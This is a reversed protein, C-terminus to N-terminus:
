RGDAAGQINGFGLRRLNPIQFDPNHDVIHGLTDAGADGYKEADPLQGVGLSDLVILTVRKM